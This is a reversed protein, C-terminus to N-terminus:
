DPALVECGHQQTVGADRIFTSSFCLFPRAIGHLYLLAAQTQRTDAAATVTIGDQSSDTTDLSGPPSPRAGSNAPNHSQSGVAESIHKIHQSAELHLLLPAPEFGLVCSDGRM